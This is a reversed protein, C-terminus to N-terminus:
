QKTASATYTEKSGAITLSYQWSMATKAPNTTSGSGEATWGNSMKQSSVVIQSSTVLGTVTVDDSGSNGFNKLIVQSSNGPDKAITVIYSQSKASKLLGSEYFQWEGIFPDRIDGGTSGEDVPECASFNITIVAAFFILLLFTSKMAKYNLTLIVFKTNQRISIMLYPYLNNNM